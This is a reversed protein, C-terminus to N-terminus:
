RLPLQSPPGANAARGLSPQASVSGCGIVVVMVGVADTHIFWEVVGISGFVCVRGGRVSVM